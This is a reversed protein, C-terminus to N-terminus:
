LCVLHELMVSLINIQVFWCQLQTSVDGLFVHIWGRSVAGNTIILHTRKASKSSQQRRVLLFRSARYCMRKASNNALAPIRLLFPSHTTFRNIEKEPKFSSCIIPELNKNSDLPNPM